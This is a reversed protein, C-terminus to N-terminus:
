AWARIILKWNASTAGTFAGTSKNMMLIPPNDSGFRININTADPVISIGRNLSGEGSTAPNIIVEDGISYGSEATLCKIYPLYLKPQVGLGHALTLAGGATITQQGSEFSKTFPVTAWNPATAGANMLLAQSATGKALRALTQAATYYEIDGAATSAPIPLFTQTAAGDGVTLVKNTTGFQLDGTVTPAPAASNKLTLTPTNIQPSTLIAQQDLLFQTGDYTVTIKQAAVVEGGVLAVPGAASLKFVNKAALAGVQLTMTTVNTFGPTFSVKYGATLTFTAPTTSALIQAGATGTTTGGVYYTVAAATATDTYNKTAADTAIAPDGMAAVRFGGMPLNAGMSKVGTTPLSNTIENGIDATLNNYPTSQITTGPVGATGAPQSYVGGSNRPM